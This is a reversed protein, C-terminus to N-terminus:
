RGFFMRIEPCRLQYLMTEGNMVVTKCSIRSVVRYCHRKTASRTRVGLSFNIIGLGVDQDLHREGPCAVILDM